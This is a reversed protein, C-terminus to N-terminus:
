RADIDFGGIVAELHLAVACAKHLDEIAHAPWGLRHQKVPKDNTVLPCSSSGDLDSTSVRSHGPIPDLFPKDAM